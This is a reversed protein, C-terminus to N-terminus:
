ELIYVRNFKFVRFFFSGEKVFYHLKLHIFWLTRKVENNFERASVRAYVRARTAYMTFHKLERYILEM